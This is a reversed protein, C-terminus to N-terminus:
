CTLPFILPWHTWLLKSTKLIFFISFSVLFILTTLCNWLCYNLDQLYSIGYFFTPHSFASAFTPAHSPQRLIFFEEEYQSTLCVALDGTPLSALPLSSLSEFFFPLFYDYSLLHHASFNELLQRAAILVWKSIEPYRTLHFWVSIVHAKRWASVAEHTCIYLLHFTSNQWSTIKDFKTESNFFPLSSFPYPFSFHHKVM